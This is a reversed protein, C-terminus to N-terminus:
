INYYLIHVFINTCMTVLLFHLFSRKLSFDWNEWLFFNSIQLKKVDYELTDSLKKKFFFIGVGIIIIFCLLSYFILYMSLWLSVVIRVAFRYSDYKRLSSCQAPPVDRLILLPLPLYIAISADRVLEHRPSVVHSSALCEARSLKHHKHDQTSRRQGRQHRGGQRSCTLQCQVIIKSVLM